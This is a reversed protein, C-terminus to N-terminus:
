SNEVKFQDAITIEIQCRDPIISPTTRYTVYIDRPLRRADQEDHRNSADNCLAAGSV